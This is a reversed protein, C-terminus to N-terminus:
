RVSERPAADSEPPSLWRMRRAVWIPLALQHRVPLTHTESTEPAIVGWLGSRPQRSLADELLWRSSIIQDERFPFGMVQYKAALAPQSATAANSLILVPKGLRQLSIVREVAGPIVAAGTNLVGFADFVFADFRDQLPELSAIPAVPGCHGELAPLQDRLGQYRAFAWAPTPTIGAFSTPHRDTM